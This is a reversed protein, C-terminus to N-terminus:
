REGHASSACSSAFKPCPTHEFTVEADIINGVRAGEAIRPLYGKDILFHRAADTPCAGSFKDWATTKAVTTTTLHSHTSHIIAAWGRTRVAAEIEELTHGCDTDLMVLAIQDANAKHRRTGRFIAPVVCSGAKPGVEHNTLIRALAPWTITRRDTWDKQTPMAGFTLAFTRPATRAPEVAGSLPERALVNM